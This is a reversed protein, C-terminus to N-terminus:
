RLSHREEGGSSLATLFRHLPHDHWPTQIRRIEERFIGMKASRQMIDSVLDEPLESGAHLADSMMSGEISSIEEMIAKAYGHQLRAAKKDVTRASEMFAELEVALAKVVVLRIKNETEALQVRIKQANEPLILPTEETDDVVPFDELSVVQQENDANSSGGLFSELFIEHELRTIERKIAQADDPKGTGVSAQHEVELAEIARRRAENLGKELVLVIEQSSEPLQFRTQDFPPTDSCGTVSMAIAALLAFRSWEHMFNM